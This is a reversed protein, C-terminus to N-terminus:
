MFSKLQDIIQEPQFPKTIYGKAGQMEAWLRDAKQGKSTVFVVPITKTQPHSHLERCTAFGDMEPMIIDLFIVDPQEKQALKVAESGNSASLVTFGAEAVISKINGLDAPSDDVVLVKNIAM